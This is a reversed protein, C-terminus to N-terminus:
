RNFAKLAQERLVEQEVDTMDDMRNWIRKIHHRAKEYERDTMMRAIARIVGEYKTTM